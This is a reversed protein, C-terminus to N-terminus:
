ALREVDGILVQVMEAYRPLGMRALEPALQTGAKALGFCRSFSTVRGM